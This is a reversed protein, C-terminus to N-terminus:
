KIKKILYHATLFEDLNGKIIACCDRETNEFKNKLRFYPCGGSCVAFYFCNQCEIDELPDAGVLYNTALAPNTMETLHVNGIEREKAGVDNWCKYIGGEPGIVFSNIKRACCEGLSIVPFFDLTQVGNKKFQELMFKSKMERDFECSISNCSNQLYNTVFGSYISINKNPFKDTLYKHLLHYEDENSNDINVRVSITKKNYVSFFYEMNHIIKQFSDKKTIHPRKKNHTEEMGDITIQLTYINLNSLEDIINETMLYGNTIMYASYNANIAKIQKTLSRIRDISLLPEGGYWTVSISKVNDYKKIFEILKKETEDSMEINPHTNGEYCYSCRFNCALTPAITLALSSDDFRSYLRQFKIKYYDDLDNEVIIRNELLQNLFFDDISDPVIINNKIDQLINYQEETLEIFVNNMANYLFFGHEESHFLYNYKSFIM